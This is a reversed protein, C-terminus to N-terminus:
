NEELSDDDEGTGCMLDCLEKAEETTLLAYNLEACKEEQVKDCTQCYVCTYCEVNKKM